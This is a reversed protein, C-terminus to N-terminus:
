RASMLESAFGQRFHHLEVSTSVMPWTRFLGIGSDLKKSVGGDKMKFIGSDKVRTYRSMTQTADHVEGLKAQKEALEGLANGAESWLERAVAGSKNLKVNDNEDYFTDPEVNDVAAEYGRELEDARKKELAFIEKELALIEEKSGGARLQRKLALIQHLRAKGAMQLNRAVAIKKELDAGRYGGTKPAHGVEKELLRAKAAMADAEGGLARAQALRPGREFNKKGIVNGVTAAFKARVGLVKVRVRNEVTRLRLQGMTATPVPRPLAPHESASAVGSLM